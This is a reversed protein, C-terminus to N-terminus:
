FAKYYNYLLYAQFHLCLAGRPWYSFVPLNPHTQLVYLLVQSHDEKEGSPVGQGTRGGEGTRGRRDERGQGGERGGEQEAKV